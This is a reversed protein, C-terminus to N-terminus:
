KAANDKAKSDNTPVVRVKGDPDMDVRLGMSELEASQMPQQAELEEVLTQNAENGELVNRLAIIAWERLTFCGYSFSTCSLLVHLATRETCSDCVTTGPPALPFPVVTQRVFDQNQRCRYCVNGLLQVLGTIRRQDENSVVLERANRGQNTASLSDVVAGLDLSVSQILSTDRGLVLRTESMSVHEETGLSTALIELILSWAEKTLAPDCSTIKKQSEAVQRRAKWKAGAQPSPAQPHPPKLQMRVIQIEDMSAQEEPTTSLFRAGAQRPHLVQAAQAQNECPADVHVTESLINNLVCFRNALVVHSLVTAADGADRGLFPKEKKSGPGTAEHVARAVCHLLVILEPTVSEGSASTYMAPLLGLCCLKEITRAIWETASDGPGDDKTGDNDLANETVTVSTAPLLQRLLTSMLLCDSAIRTSFEEGVLSESIPVSSMCNYLAAVIAALGERSNSQACALMMDVWTTEQTENKTTIEDDIATSTLSIRIKTEIAEESPSLPITSAVATATEPNSTVLNCVLRAMLIRCKSDGKTQALAYSLPVHWQYTIIAEEQLAARTEENALCMTAYRLAARSQLIMDKTLSTCSPDKEKEKVAQGYRSMQKSFQRMHPQIQQFSCHAQSNQKAEDLLQPWSPMTGLSNREASDNAEQRRIEAADESM